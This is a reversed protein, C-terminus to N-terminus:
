PQLHINITPPSPRPDIVYSQRTTSKPDGYYYEWSGEAKFIQHHPQHDPGAPTGAQTHGVRLWDGVIPPEKPPKEKLAPAAPALHAALFLLWSISWLRTM